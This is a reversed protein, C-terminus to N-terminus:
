YLYPNLSISFQTQYINYVINSALYWSLHRLRTASVQLLYFYVLISRIIQNLLQRRGGHWHCPGSQNSSSWRARYIPCRCRRQIQSVTDKLLMWTCATEKPWNDSRSYFYKMKSSSAVSCVVASFVWLVVNDEGQFTVLNNMVRIFAELLSYLQM